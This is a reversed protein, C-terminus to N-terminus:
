LKVWSEPLLDSSDISEDAFWRKPAVVIKDPSPNLWAGWWSFTSNAIIHHACRSMLRLDEFGNEAGNHDVLRVSDGLDLNERVWEPEDSFLYFTPDAVRERMHEVARHYYDASCVGHMAYVAPDTIYDGRRVHLSVSNCAAIANLTEANLGVATTRFTLEERVLDSADEFYRESQWYGRLCVGDPLLLVQPDFCFTREVAATRSRDRSWRAMLRAVLGGSRAMIAEIDSPGALEATIAFADLEYSRPTRITPDDLGSLDLKLQTNRAMALRLGAAYQFMQNGLGGELRSIIVPLLGGSGARL